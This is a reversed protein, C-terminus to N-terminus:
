QGIPKKLGEPMGEYEGFPAAETPHVEYYREAFDAWVTACNSSFVGRLPLNQLHGMWVVAVMDPTYGAFWIDRVQDTTGTKGAVWRGKLQAVRGTGVRVVSQLASNIM